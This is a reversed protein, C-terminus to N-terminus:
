IIVESCFYFHHNPYRPISSTCTDGLMPSLTSCPILPISPSFFDWYFCPPLLLTHYISLIGTGHFYHPYLLILGWPHSQCGRIALHSRDWELKQPYRGNEIQAMGQHIKVKTGDTQKVHRAPELRGGRDKFRPGGPGIQAEPHM